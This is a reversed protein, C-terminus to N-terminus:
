KKFAIKLWAKKIRQMNKRITPELIAYRKEHCFELYKFQPTNGRINIITAKNSSEVFGDITQRSLGTRDTWPANQKADAVLVEKETEAFVKAAAVTKKDFSELNKILSTADFKIM